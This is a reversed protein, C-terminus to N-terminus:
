RNSSSKRSRNRRVTAAQHLPIRFAARALRQEGFSPAPSPGPVVGNGQRQRQVNFRTSSSVMVLRILSEPTLVGNDARKGKAAASRADLKNSLAHLVTSPM